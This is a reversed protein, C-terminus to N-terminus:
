EAARLAQTLERVDGLEELRDVLAAVRAVQTKSLLKSSATELKREIDDRSLPDAPDGKACERRDLHVTGDLM